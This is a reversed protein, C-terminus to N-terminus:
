TQSPLMVEDSRGDSVVWVLPSLSAVSGHSTLSCHGFLPDVDTNRCLHHLQVQIVTDGRATRCRRNRERLVVGQDEMVGPENFM